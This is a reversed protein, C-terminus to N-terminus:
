GNSGPVRIGEIGRLPEASRREPPKEGFRLEYINRVVKLSAPCPAIGVQGSLSAARLPRRRTGSSYLRVGRKDVFVLAGHLVDIQGKEVFLVSLREEIPIPKLPPLLTTV